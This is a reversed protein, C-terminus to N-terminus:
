HSASALITQLHEMGPAAKGSEIRHVVEVIAANVPAALGHRRATAAIHGNLYDVETKQGRELSQLSSSRHRRYRRAVVSLLLRRGPIRAAFLGPRFGAVEEFRVGDAEGAAHGEEVIRLFADQAARERLLVGLEQGTLVGLSTMCSNVLLKSWKTGLMNASARVPGAPALLQAVQKFAAPEDRPHPKPWPGIIFHGPGTQVSRGPGELTAPLAVTCEVLRDGALAAMRDGLVGNQVALVPTDPGIAPLWLALAVEAASCKTALVLLRPAVDLEAPDHVFRPMAKVSHGDPDIAVVGSRAFAKASEATRCAVVVETGADALRAAVLAGIAGPGVVLVPGSDPVQVAPAFPNPRLALPKTARRFREAGESERIPEGRRAMRPM